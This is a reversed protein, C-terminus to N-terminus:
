LQLAFIEETRVLTVRTCTSVGKRNRRNKKRRVVLVVAVVVVLVLVLLIGVGLGVGLVVRAASDTQPSTGRQALFDETSVSTSKSTSGAPTSPKKSTPPKPSSGPLPSQPHITTGHLILTWDFLIGTNAHDPHSSEMTLTWPGIATEGWNHLTMLVWNLDKAGFAADAKRYHTLNSVTGQPSILKILLEGRLTYNLNVSVEVHELYNIKDGCFDEWKSLDITEKTTVKPYIRRNVGRLPITCTVNTPVRKWKVALDVMQKADMLGFGVYDNVKFGAKNINWDGDKINVPGPRATRVIIHQVDRWSLDGNASLMLAILGSAMAAAASSAGFDGTCAKHTDATIVEKAGFIDRTYTVAVIGACREGVVPINGDSRIGTIAITYISNVYGNFACSDKVLVGGNGAAFVYISGLGGRGKEAGNKLARQTLPGPGEVELGKDGPGWSNSYIDILNTAHSLARATDADSAKEMYFLRIGGLKANFALGVGCKHNNAVASIVAASKEGHGYLQDGSSSLPTTDNDIVDLSASGDHLYNDYIEPHQPDFGEDVVAVVVGAGTINKNWVDIVNYTPGDTRKIYWMEPWREDNFHYVQSESLLKFSKLLQQEVMQVKPELMLEKHLSASSLRSVRKVKPHQFSFYNDIIKGQIVFGYKRALREAEGSHGDIQVTWRNCYELANSGFFLFYFLRLLSLVISPM